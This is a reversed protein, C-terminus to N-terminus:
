RATHPTLAAAPCPRILVVLSVAASRAVPVTLRYHEEYCGQDPGM